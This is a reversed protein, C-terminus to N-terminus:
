SIGEVGALQRLPHCQDRLDVSHRVAEATIWEGWRVSEPSRLVPSGSSEPM